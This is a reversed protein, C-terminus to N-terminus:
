EGGSLVGIQVWQGDGGGGIADSRKFVPGGSDGDCTARRQSRLCLTHKCFLGHDACFIDEQCKVVEYDMESLADGPDDRDGSLTYM